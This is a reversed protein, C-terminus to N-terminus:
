ITNYYNFTYVYLTYVYLPKECYILCNEISLSKYLFWSDGECSCTISSALSWVMIKNIIENMITNKNIVKTEIKKVNNKILFDTKIIRKKINLSEKKDVPFVLICITL